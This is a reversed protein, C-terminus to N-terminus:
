QIILSLLLDQLFRWRRGHHKKPLIPMNCPTTCPDLFGWAKYEEIIPKIEALAKSHLLYQKINPLRKRTYIQIKM